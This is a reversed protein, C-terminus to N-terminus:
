RSGSGLKSYRAKAKKRIHSPLHKQYDQITLCGYIKKVLMSSVQTSLEEVIPQELSKPVAIQMKRLYSLYDQVVTHIFAKRDSDQDQFNYLHQEFIVYLPDLKTQSTNKSLAKM